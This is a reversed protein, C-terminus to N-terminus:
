KCMKKLIEPDIENLKSLFGKLTNIEKNSLENKQLELNVETWLIHYMNVPTKM